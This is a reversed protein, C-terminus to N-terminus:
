RYCRQHSDGVTNALGSGEILGKFPAFVLVMESCPSFIFLFLDSITTNDKISATENSSLAQPEAAVATGADALGTRMATIMGLAVM